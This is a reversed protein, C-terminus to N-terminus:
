IEKTNLRTKMEPDPKGRAKINGGSVLWSRLSRIVLQLDPLLALEGKLANILMPLYDLSILRRM